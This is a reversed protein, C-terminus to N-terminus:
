GSGLATAIRAVATEPDEHEWIRVVTWGAAELRSTQQADREVNRGIKPGWYGSNTSPTRGHVPCGHWFCGDVFV